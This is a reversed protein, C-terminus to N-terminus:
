NTKKAQSSSQREERFAKRIYAFIILNVVLVAAIAAGIQNLPSELEVHDVLIQKAGFFAGIPLTFM